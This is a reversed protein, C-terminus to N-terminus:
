RMYLGLNCPCSREKVGEGTGSDNFRKGKFLRQFDQLSFFLTQEFGKLFSVEMLLALSDLHEVSVGQVASLNNAKHDFENSIM